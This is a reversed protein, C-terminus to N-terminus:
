RMISVKCSLTTAATVLRVILMGSQSGPSPVVTEIIDQGSGHVDWKGVLRGSVDTILLRGSRRGLGHVVVAIARGSEVARARLALLGAPITLSVESGGLTAGTADALGYSYTRGGPQAADHLDVNGFGDPSLLGVTTTMGGASERRWARVPEAGLSRWRIWVEGSEVRATVVSVNVPVPLDLTLRQAVLGNQGEILAEWVAIASDM